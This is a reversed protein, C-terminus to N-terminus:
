VSGRTHLLLAGREKVLDAYTAQYGGCLDARASMLAYPDKVYGPNKAGDILVFATDLNSLDAPQSEQLAIYSLFDWPTTHQNRNLRPDSQAAREILTIM